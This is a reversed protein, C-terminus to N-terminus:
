SMTWFNIWNEVLLTEFCVPDRSCRQGCSWLACGYRCLWFAPLSVRVVGEEGYLISHGRVQSNNAQLRILIADFLKRINNRSRKGLRKTAQIDRHEVEEGPCKHETARQVFEHIVANDNM